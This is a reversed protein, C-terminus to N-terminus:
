YFQCKYKLNISINLDVNYNIKLIKNIKCFSSKPISTMYSSSLLYSSTKKRSYDKAIFNKGYCNSQRQVFEFDMKSYNKVAMRNLLHSQNLCVSHSFSLHM